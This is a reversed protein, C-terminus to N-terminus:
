VTPPTGQASTFEAIKECKSNPSSLKEMHTFGQSMKPKAYKHLIKRILPHGELTEVPDDCDLLKTVTETVAEVTETDSHKDIILDLHRSPM